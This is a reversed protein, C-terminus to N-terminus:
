RLGADAVHNPGGMLLGGGPPPSLVAVFGYSVGAVACSKGETQIHMESRVQLELGAMDELFCGDGLRDSHFYHDIYAHKNVLNGIQLGAIFFREQRDMQM